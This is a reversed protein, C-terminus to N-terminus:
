TVLKENSTRFDELRKQRTWFPGPTGQTAQIPRLSRELHDNPHEFAEKSAKKSRRYCRPCVTGDLQACPIFFFRPLHINISFVIFVGM